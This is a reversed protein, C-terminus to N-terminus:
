TTGGSREELTKVREKLEDATAIVGNRHRNCKELEATLFKIEGAQESIHVEAEELRKTLNEIVTTQVVVAGQAASVVIQGAEPRVKLLAYIGGCIGSVGLLASIVPVWENM